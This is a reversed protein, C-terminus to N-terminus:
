PAFASKKWKDEIVKCCLLFVYLRRSRKPSNPPTRSNRCKNNFGHADSQIPNKNLRLAISFSYITLLLSLNSSEIKKFSSSSSIKYFTFASAYSFPYSSYKELPLSLKQLCSDSNQLVLKEQQSVESMGFTLFINFHYWCPFSFSSSSKSIRFITFFNLVKFM